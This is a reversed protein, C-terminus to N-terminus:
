PKKKLEQIDLFGPGNGEPDRMVLAAYERKNKSMVILVLCPEGGAMDDHVFVETIKGGILVEATEANWTVESHIM